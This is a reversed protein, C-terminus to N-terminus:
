PRSACLQRWFTRSSCTCRGSAYYLYTLSNTCITTFIERAGFTFAFAFAFTFSRIRVDDDNESGVVCMRSWVFALTGHRPTCRKGDLLRTCRLLCMWEDLGLLSQYALLTKRNPVEKSTTALENGRSFETYLARLSAEHRRLVQPGTLEHLHDHVLRNARWTCM